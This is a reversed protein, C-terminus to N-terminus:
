WATSGAPCATTADTFGSFPNGATCNLCVCRVDANNAAIYDAALPGNGLARIYYAQGLPAGAQTYAYTFYNSSDTITDTAPYVRNDLYTQELSAMAASIAQQGDTVKSNNVYQTYNPYAIATLIGIIVVTVLLEILTFGSIQKIKYRM